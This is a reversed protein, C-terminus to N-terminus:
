EKWTLDLEEIWFTHPKDQGLIVSL